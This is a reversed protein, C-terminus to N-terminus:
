ASLRDILREIFTMNERRDGTLNLPAAGQWWRAQLLDADALLMAKGQGITCIAMFSPQAGVNCDASPTKGDRLPLFAGPTSTELTLGDVTREVTERAEDMPLVLEIGWHTFLPSLLSTFLPRRADGLPYDSPWTLAPDALILAKGGARLWEDLAVLEPPSLARPQALLLVGRKAGDLDNLTDLSRINYRDALREFAPLPAGGQGDMREELSAEGYQLPLSTMLLLAPKEAAGDSSCGSLPWWLLTAMALSRAFGSLMM